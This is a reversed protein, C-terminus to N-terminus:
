RCRAVRRGVWVGAGTRDRWATAGFWRPGACGEQSGCGEAGAHVDASCVRCRRSRLTRAGGMPVPRSGGQRGCGDAGAGEPGLAREAGARGGPRLALWAGAGGEPGLACHSPPWRQASRVVPVACGEQRGRVGAVARGEPGLALMPCQRSGGASCLSRAPTVTQRGCSRRARGPRACGDPGTRGGLGLAAIQRGCRESGPPILCLASATWNGAPRFPQVPKSTSPKFGRRGLSQRRWAGAAM